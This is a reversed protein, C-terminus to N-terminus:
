KPEPLKGWLVEFITHRTKAFADNQVVFIMNDFRSSIFAVFDETIIETFLVPHGAPLFKSKRGESQDKAVIRRAYPTDSILQKSMIKLKKKTRVIEELIYKEKVFGLFNQGPTIIRFEKEGSSFIMDWVEKFGAPGYLFLVQPKPYIAHKREEFMDLASEFDHLHEKARRLLHSPEAPLYAAKKGRKTEILAGFAILEELIYYVTTRRLGARLAITQVTGEGLELSALYVQAGKVSLGINKLIETPQM